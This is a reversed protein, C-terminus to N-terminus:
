ESSASHLRHVTRRQRRRVNIEAQTIRRSTPRQKVTAARFDDSPRGRLVVEQQGGALMEDLKDPHLLSFLIFLLAFIVFCQVIVDCGVWSMVDSCPDGSM